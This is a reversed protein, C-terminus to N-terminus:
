LRDAPIWGRDGNVKRVLLWGHRVDEVTVEEGPIVRLERASYDKVITAQPREGSLFEVPVWGQRGDAATCWQWGPFEDDARGVRLNEGARVILPNAYQVDYGLKVQVKQGATNMHGM